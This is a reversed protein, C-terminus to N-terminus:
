SGAVTGPRPKRGVLYRVGHPGYSERHRTNAALFFVDGAAYRTDRGDIELRIEGALILAKADFPHEHLDLGGAEREVAVIEGFGEQALETRFQEPNM